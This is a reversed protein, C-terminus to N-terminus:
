AEAFRGAVSASFADLSGNLDGSTLILVVDGAGLSDVVNSLKAPDYPEAAIGSARVRELIDEGALQAHTGAGQTAPAAVWTLDAGAFVDDYWYLNARNRWGFTHPEFVVVLRHGPFHLQIAEIASRAKEYSSGFGEYVPVASGLAINDLKRRVGAFDAVAARLASADVLKRSLLCAGAAVINEINHRGLLATELEVSLGDPGKLTFGSRAGIRIDSAHYDGTDVGYTVVRASSERAIKLAGPEEACVVVQGGDPVGALLDHFPKTYDEYTPYINVHDHVVATLVVDHPHLHMFKARPDDHGSPYEDGELVFVPATGINSPAPLTASRIPEAGIFYGADVGAHRLIHAIISTTTSKGYSGAVVLNSRDKTIDGLVEPFSRINLHRDYASRVEGNESPLLKANRGIVVLDVDQPINEPAYGLTPVIGARDLIGKPPGYCDADSGSVAFGDQKLLLATASMGIGCIGILHATKM